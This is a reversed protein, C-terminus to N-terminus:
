VLQVSPWRRKSVHYIDRLVAGSISTVIGIRKPFRPLPKKHAADFLGEAALRAKLQEFALALDGAGEPMM